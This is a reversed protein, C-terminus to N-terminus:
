QSSNVRKFLFFYFFDEKPLTTEMCFGDNKIYWKGKHKTYAVYHGGHASGHHKCAAFLEYCTSTNAPADKSLFPKMELFESVKIKVKEGYMRTTFGLVKPLEWFLNRTVSVHHIIGQDDQFNEITSWDQYTKISQEVTEGNKSLLITMPTHEIRLSKGSKCVTEQVMKSYFIERILSHNPNGNFPRLSNDLIDLLCLFAEQSDHQNSTRFQPYRSRFLELLKDPNVSGEGKLWVKRVMNQYEKVFESDGTYNKLIMYNSLQPVQLLCQLSCNFYCTNGLNDLGKM